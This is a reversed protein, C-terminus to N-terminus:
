RRRTRRRRAKGASPASMRAGSSSLRTPRGSGSALRGPQPLPENPQPSRRCSMEPASPWCRACVLDWQLANYQVVGTAVLRELQELHVRVQAVDGLITYLRTLSALATAQRDADGAARFAALAREMYYRAEGYRAQRALLEGIGLGALNRM